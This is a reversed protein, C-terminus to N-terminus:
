PRIPSPAWGGSTSSRERTSSSRGTRLRSRPLRGPARLYGKWANSDVIVSEDLFEPAISPHQVLNSVRGLRNVNKIVERILLVPSAGSLKATRTLTLGGM